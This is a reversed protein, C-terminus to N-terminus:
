WSAVPVISIRARRSSFAKSVSHARYLSQPPVAVNGMLVGLLVAVLLPFRFTTFPSVLLAAQPM